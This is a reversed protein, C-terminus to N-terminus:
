VQFLIRIFTKLNKEKGRSALPHPNFVCVLFTLLFGLSMAWHLRTKWKMEDSKLHLSLSCENLCSYHFFISQFTMKARNRISLLGLHRNEKYKRKLPQERNLGYAELDAEPWIVSLVLHEAVAFGATPDRERGEQVLDEMRPEWGPLSYQLLISLTCIKMKTNLHCLLHWVPLHTSFVVFM